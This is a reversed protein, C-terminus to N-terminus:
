GILRLQAPLRGDSRLCNCRHHAIAVNSAAHLGGRSLPILHDLTFTKRSVKRRCIHCIGKDRVYIEAPDVKESPTGRMRARREYRYGKVKDRNANQWQRVHEKREEKHREYFRRDIERRRPRNKEVWRRHSAQAAEPHTKRWERCKKRFEEPSTWYRRRQYERYWALYRERNAQVWRKRSANVKARNERAYRRVEECHCPKCESRHGDKSSSHRHFDDLPKTLQCIRCRKATVSEKTASDMVPQNRDPPLM